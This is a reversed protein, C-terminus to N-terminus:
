RRVEGDLNTDTWLILVRWTYDECQKEEGAEKKEKLNGIVEAANDSAEQGSIELGSDCLEEKTDDAKNCDEIQDKAEEKREKGASFLEGQEADEKGNSEGAEISEDAGNTQTGIHHSEELEEASEELQGEEVLLLEEVSDQNNAADKKGDRDESATKSIVEAPGAPNAIASIDSAQSIDVDNAATKANGQRWLAELQDWLPPLQIYLVNPSSHM